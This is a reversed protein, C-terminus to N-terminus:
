GDAHGTRLGDAAITDLRRRSAVGKTSTRTAQHATVAIPTLRMKRGGGSSTRRLMHASSLLSKRVVWRPALAKRTADANAKDATIATGSPIAAALDGRDPLQDHRQERKESVQRHRRHHRQADEPEAETM